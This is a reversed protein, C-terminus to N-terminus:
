HLVVAFKTHAVAAVCVRRKGFALVPVIGMDELEVTLFGGFSFAGM